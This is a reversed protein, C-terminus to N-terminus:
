RQRRWGAVGRAAMFAAIDRLGILYSAVTGAAVMTGHPHVLEALWALLDGILAPDGADGILWRGQRGDSFECAIGPPGDAAEGADRMAATPPRHRVRHRGGPGGGGACRCFRRHRGARLRRRLDADHRLRRLYAETTLASSHGLLDRLVMLPDAKALYLALAADAGAGSGAAAALQAAQVYFGGVLKELTAVAMSHRLRHPHVLPFRPEFHERIRTSARTFVSEWATFPGGDTRVALLCSGGGPAVLRLREGATLSAWKVKRGNVRGGDPGPDAVLLPEGARVPPSWVSCAASAARDLAIYGHVAHLTDADIWTAWTSVARPWHRRFRSCCRASCPLHAAPRRLRYRSCWCSRSEPRRLGTALVLRAVAANQALERGRYGADASGDPMLGALANLFLAAFGAELYKITVHPKPAWRRAMNARALRVQDGYRSLALAYTFPVAGAHGEAVAWQYFSRCCPSTSTGPLRPSGPRCRGAPGTRRMRGLARKLRDRTDFLAVGLCALFM